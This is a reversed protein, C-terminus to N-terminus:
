RRRTSRSKRGRRTRRGGREGPVVPDKFVPMKPEKMVKRKNTPQGWQKVHDLYDKYKEMDAYYKDRAAVFRDQEKKYLENFVKMHEALKKERAENEKKAEKAYERQQKEHAGLNDIPGRLTAQLNNDKIHKRTGQQQHRWPQRGFM